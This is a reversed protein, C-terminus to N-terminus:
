KAHENVVGEQIFIRHVVEGDMRELRGAQRGSVDEVIIRWDYWVPEGNWSFNQGRTFHHYFQRAKLTETTLSDLGKYREQAAIRGSSFFGIGGTGTFRPNRGAKFDDHTWYGRLETRVTQDENSESKVTGDAYIFSEASSYPNVYLWVSLTVTPQPIIIGVEKEVEVIKECGTIALLCM